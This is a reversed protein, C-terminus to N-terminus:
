FKSSMRYLWVSVTEIWILIVCYFVRQFLGALPVHSQILFIISLVMGLFSAAITFWTFGFWSPKRFVSGAFMLMGVFMSLCSTIVVANHVIGQINLGSFNVGSINRFVGALIMCIGYLTLSSWAMYAKIGHRLRLFLAYAFGIILVGYIIFGTIMLGPNTAGQQSLSSITDTLHNYGPTLLGSILIITIIFPPAIMGCCALIRSLYLRYLKTLATIFEDFIKYAPETNTKPNDPYRISEDQFNV